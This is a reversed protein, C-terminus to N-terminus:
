SDQIAYSLFLQIIEFTFTMEKKVDKYESKSHSCIRIPWINIEVEM